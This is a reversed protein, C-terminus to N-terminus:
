MRPRGFYAINVEFDNIEMNRPIAGSRIMTVTRVGNCVGELHTWHRLRVDHM